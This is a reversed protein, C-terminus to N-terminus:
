WSYTACSLKNKIVPRDIMARAKTSSIQELPLAKTHIMLCSALYFTWLRNADANLEGGGDDGNLTLCQQIERRLFNEGEAGHENGKKPSLLFFFSLWKPTHLVSWLKKSSKKAAKSCIYDGEVHKARTKQVLYFLKGRSFSEERKRPSRMRHLQFMDREGMEGGRWQNLKGEEFCMKTYWVKMYSLAPLM